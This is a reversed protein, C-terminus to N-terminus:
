KSINSSVVMSLQEVNFPKELAAVFGYEKYNAIVPDTSYGSSVIVKADSDIALIERVAEKGGMGGPITLDMIILGVPNPTSQMSKYVKIAEVGDAVSVVDYGLHTLMERTLEIVLKEDDMIMVMGCGDVSQQTHLEAQEAQVQIAPLYFTFTTGQGERSRVTINGEHKTIISHCVALGLGSGEKKTSFYPDFVTGLISEPIGHGNDGLTVRVYKDGTLVAPFGPSQRSINSCSIEILGGEEMAQKANIILNQVVQSIQGSDINVMWLDEDFTYQCAVNSGSLIFRSSEKILSDLAATHRVPDGGKSFTLLQSTLGRARLSAKEAKQILSFAKSNRDILHEALNLSGLIGVLLNNFDHAIGGALVGVSEMKDSQIMAEELQVRETIDDVRIVAGEMGQSQLPYITIDQYRLEGELYREKKLNVKIKKSQIAEHLADMEPAMYPYVTELSKGLASNRSIGTVKEVELNWQNVRCNVDVGILISPMSDIINALMKRLMVKEESIMRNEIAISVVQAMTEMLSLEAVCPKRPKDHYLAFTGVVKGNSAFVPQSWCAQLGAKKTLERVGQWYPHTQLNEAIFTEGRFAATGCSGMGDRVPTGDIVNTYFDPLKTKIINRLRKGEKDVILISATMGSIKEEAVEVIMELVQELTGGLALKKLIKTIQQDHKRLQSVETIDRISGVLYKNGKEDLFLAKRTSITLVVGEANTITEVNEDVQGHSFVEKDKELFVEVQEKPFFDYDCKGVIEDAPLGIIECLGQNVYVFRHHIDKVFIADPLSNFVSLLLGKPQVITNATSTTASNVFDM